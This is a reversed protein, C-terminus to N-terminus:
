SNLALGMGTFRNPSRPVLCFPVRGDVLFRVLGLSEVPRLMLGAFHSSVSGLTNAGRSTELAFAVRSSRRRFCASAVSRRERVVLVRRCVGALDDLFDERFAVRCDALAKADNADEDEGEGVRVYLVGLRPLPRFAEILFVEGSSKLAKLALGIGSKLRVGLVPRRLPRFALRADVEIEHRFGSSEEDDPRFAFKDALFTVAVGLRVGVRGRRTM